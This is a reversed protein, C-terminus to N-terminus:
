DGSKKPRWRLKSPDSAFNWGIKGKYRNNNGKKGKTFIGWCEGSKIQDLMLSTDVVPTDGGEEEEGDPIYGTIAEFLNVFREFGKGNLYFREWFGFPVPLVSAPTDDNGAFELLEIRALVFEYEQGQQNTDTREDAYGIRFKYLGENPLGAAQVEEATKKL